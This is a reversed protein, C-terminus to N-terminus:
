IQWVRPLDTGRLHRLISAVDHRLRYPDQAMARVVLKEGWASAAATDPLIARLAALRDEAGPQVLAITALSTADGLGASGSRCLDLSTLRLPDVFVPSGTRSVIRRDLLDVSSVTEGMAGRGLTLLECFLCSAGADLDIRTTRHLASADFLITEQPLWDLHAGPGVELRVDVHAPGNASRYAREATQTTATARADRGLRVSFELADGGTLGGATNLFVAEPTTTHTRPLMVKGSGKQYLTELNGAAGFVVRAVGKVRQMTPPPGDFMANISLSPPVVHLVHESM